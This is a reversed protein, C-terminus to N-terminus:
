LLEGDERFAEMATKHRQKTLLLERSLIDIKGDQDLLENNYQEIVKRSQNLEDLVDQYQTNLEELNDGLTSREEEGKQLLADCERSLRAIEIKMSGIEDSFEVQEEDTRILEDRFQIAISQASALKDRLAGLKTQLAEKSEGLTESTLKKANKQLKLRQRAQDIKEKHTEDQQTLQMRLTAIQDNYEREISAKLATIRQNELTEEEIQSEVECTRSRHDCIVANVDAVERERVELETELEARTSV